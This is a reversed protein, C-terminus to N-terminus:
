DANLEAVTELYYLVKKHALRPSFFNFFALALLSHSNLIVRADKRAWFTM